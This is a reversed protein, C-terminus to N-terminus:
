KMCRLKRRTRTQICPYHQHLFKALFLVFLTFSFQIPRFSLKARESVAYFDLSPKHMFYIYRFNYKVPLQLLFVLLALMCVRFTFITRSDVTYLTFTCLVILYPVCLTCATLQYGFFHCCCCFCSRSVALAAKASEVRARDWVMGYYFTQYQKYNMQDQLSNQYRKEM